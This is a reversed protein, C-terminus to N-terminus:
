FDHLGELPILAGAQLALLANLYSHKAQMAALEAQKTALQTQKFTIDAILGAELRQAELAERARANRLADQQVRYGSAAARVQNYLSQAQLQLGRRAEGALAEAQELQLEAADIQVQAAYSPDLLDRGITALEVGQRAELLTPHHELGALVVELSPVSQLYVEAIPELATVTQGILSELSRKALQAGQEATSVTQAAEELATQAEELELETASGRELRIRTIELSQAALDRAFRALELQAEAELAQMYAEAIDAIAAFRAQRLQAEALALRQAAQTQELRLALPDAQTRVLALRADSASLESNIVGTRSGVATLATALDLAYVSSFVFGLLM